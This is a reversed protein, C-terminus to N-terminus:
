GVIGGYGGRRSKAARWPRRFAKVKVSIAYRWCWNAMVRRLAVGRVL